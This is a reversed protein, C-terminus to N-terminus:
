KGLRHVFVEKGDKNLVQVVLSDQRAHTVMFGGETMAFLTNEKWNVPRSKGGAGSVIPLVGEVPKLIQQDHDHGFVSLNVQYKILLPELHKKMVGSNGHIGNSYIPHHGVVIKWDATSVSLVSDLWQIQKPYNEYSKHIPYTDIMIFHLQTNNASKKIDYYAAPLTWKTSHTTYEIQSQPNGYHDHNGLTLYFPFNLSPYHYIDEFLEKLQPDNIGTIGTPYINDGTSVLFQIPFKEAYEALSEAVKTQYYTGSGFDGMMFFSIDPLFQHHQFPAFTVPQEGIVKAAPFFYYDYNRILTCSFFIIFLSSGILLHIKKM